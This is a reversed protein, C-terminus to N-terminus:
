LGTDSRLLQETGAHCTTLKVALTSQNHVAVNSVVVPLCAGPLCAASRISTSCFAPILQMHRALFAASAMAFVSYAGCHLKRAFGLATGLWRPCMRVQSGSECPFAGLKRFVEQRASSPDHCVVQKGTIVGGDIFGSALAEAMMGAGIFGLVQPVSM